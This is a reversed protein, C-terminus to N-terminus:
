RWQWPRPPPLTPPLSDKLPPSVNGRVPAADPTLPESETVQRGGGEGRALAAGFMIYVVNLDNRVGGMVVCSPM